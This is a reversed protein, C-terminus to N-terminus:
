KSIGNNSATASVVPISGVQYDKQSKIPAPIECSIFEKVKFLKLNDVKRLAQRNHQIAVEHKAQITALARVSANYELEPVRMNLYSEPSFVYKGDLRIPNLKVTRDVELIQEGQLFGTLTETMTDLNDQIEHKSMM